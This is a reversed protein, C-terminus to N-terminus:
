FAPPLVRFIRRLVDVENKWPTLTWSLPHRWNRSSGRYGRPFLGSAVRTIEKNDERKKAVLRLPNCVKRFCGTRCFVRPICRLAVNITRCSSRASEKRPGRKSNIAVLLSNVAACMFLHGAVFTDGQAQLGSSREARACSLNSKPSM